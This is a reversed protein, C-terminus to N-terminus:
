QQYIQRLQTELGALDDYERKVIKQGKAVEAQRFDNIGPDKTRMDRVASRMGVEDKAIKAKLADIRDCLESPDVGIRVHVQGQAQGSAHHMTQRTTPYIVVPATPAAVAPAAVTPANTVAQVTAKAEIMDLVPGMNFRSYCENVHRRLVVDGDNAYTSLVKTAKEIGFLEIQRYANSLVGADCNTFDRDIILRIMREDGQSMLALRAENEFGKQTLAGANANFVRGTTMTVVAINQATQRAAEAQAVANSAAAQAQATANRADAVQQNADHRVQEAEARIQANATRYEKITGRTDWIVWGAFVAAVVVAVAVAVLVKNTTTM